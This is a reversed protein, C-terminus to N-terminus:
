ISSWSGHVSLDTTCPENSLNLFWPLVVALNSKILFCFCPLLAKVRLILLNKKILVISM